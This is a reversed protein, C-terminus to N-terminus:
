NSGNKVKEKEARRREIGERRKTLFARCKDCLVRGAGMLERCRSCKILKQPRSM